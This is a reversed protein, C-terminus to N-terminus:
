ISTKDNQYYEIYPGNRRKNKYSTKSQLKGNKYYSLVEILEKKDNDSNFHKAKKIQGNQYFDIPEITINNSYLLSIVILSFFIRNKM